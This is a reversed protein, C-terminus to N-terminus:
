LILGDNHIYSYPMIMIIMITSYIYKYCCLIM